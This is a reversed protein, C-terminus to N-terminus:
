TAVATPVELNFSAAAKVLGAAATKRITTPLDRGVQSLFVMSLETLEPTYCAYKKIQGGEPLDLVLAFDSNPREQSENFDPVNANKASDSLGSILSAVKSFEGALIYDLVDYKFSALKKM